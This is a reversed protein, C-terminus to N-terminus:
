PLVDVAEALACVGLLRLLHWDAAMWDAPRVPAAGAAPLTRGGRRAAAVISKAYGALGAPDAARGADALADRVAASHQDVLALLGPDAFAAALGDVGLRAMMEDLLAAAPDAAPIDADTSIPAFALFENTM